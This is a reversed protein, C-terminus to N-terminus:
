KVEWEEVEYEPYGGKMELREVEREADERSFFVGMVEGGEYPEIGMVVYVKM